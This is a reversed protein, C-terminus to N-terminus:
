MRGQALKRKKLLVFVLVVLAVALTVGGIVAVLAFDVASGTRYDRLVMTAVPTASGVAHTDQKVFNQVDSSWWYVISSGDSATSTIRLAEFNGAPTTVREMSPAAVFTYTLEESQTSPSGQMTGNVWKTTTATVVVTEVWSDGTKATSPHFDSLMAPAFTTLVETENRYVLQFSSTGITTNMWTFVDSRAIGMGERTEFVYGGLTMSVHIGMFDASGSKGGSIKMVNVPYSTGEIEIISQGVCTYTTSGNAVVDALLLPVAASADYTWYDGDVRDMAAVPYAAVGIIWAICALYVIGLVGKAKM